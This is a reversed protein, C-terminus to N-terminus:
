NVHAEGAKETMITKIRAVTKRMVRILHPKDLSNSAKVVRLNFQEKRLTLLAAQLEDLTMTRLENIDNM